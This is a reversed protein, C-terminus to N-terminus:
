HVQPRVVPQEGVLIHQGVAAEAVQYSRVNLAAGILALLAVLGALEVDAGPMPRYVFPLAAFVSTVLWSATTLM